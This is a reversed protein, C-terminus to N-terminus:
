IKLKEKLEEPIVNKHVLISITMLRVYSESMYWYGDFGKEDGWSNKTYYFKTGDQNKALGTIHMLHDYTTVFFDFSEQRM